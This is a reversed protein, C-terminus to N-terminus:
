DLPHRREKLPLEVRAGSLGAQYVAMVMEIAKTANLASCEPERGKEIADLLDMVVRRNAREVGKDGPEVRAFPEWVDQRGEARWTGAKLIMVDPDIDMLIVAQGKSGILELRWRGVQERLKARSTFSGVVGREFEFQAEIEDGLVWGIGETAKRRDEKRAIRGKEWIMASCRKAEGAFLRMLDFLHTGLVVMDEGGARQDQKGYAQMALLEGLAGGKVAKNLAQVGPAMRMQHAVAIRLRKSSALELLHDAEVLNGTFPKESFVNAGAELAARIMAFHEETWRPAVAVLEPREDRLLQGFDSYGQKVGIRKKAAKLGTPDADAVAVVEVGPLNVFAIDLGHGYNGRGTHGIVVARFNRNEAGLAPKLTEGIVFLGATQLFQRRQCRVGSLIHKM